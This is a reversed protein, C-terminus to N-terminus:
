SAMFDDFWPKEARNSGHPARLFILCPPGDTAGAPPDAGRAELWIM